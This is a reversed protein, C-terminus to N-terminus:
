VARGPSFSRYGKGSAAMRSRFRLLSLNTESDSHLLSFVADSILPESWIPWTWQTAYRGDNFGAQSGYRDPAMPFYHLGEVALLNAGVDTAIPNKAKNSPDDAQLAYLRKEDLPDWRLSSQPVYRWGDFLTERLTNVDVQRRLAAVNEVIKMQGSHFDFRTKLAVDDRPSTESFFAAWFAAFERLKEDWAILSICERLENISIKLKQREPNRTIQAPFVHETALREALLALLSDPPLPSGITTLRPVLRGGEATWSLAPMLAPSKLTVVRLVGLAALFGLPSAGDIAPLTVHHYQNTVFGSPRLSLGGAMAPDPSPTRSACWDALRFTAELYALGWWGHRRTLTWFRAAARAGLAGFSTSPECRRADRDFSAPLGLAMLDVAPPHEDPADPFTPRAHGHHSAILHLALERTPASLSIFGFHEVLQLSLLEHRFGLPLRQDQGIEHRRRKRRPLHGSKALPRGTSVASEAAAEDGDHLMVQFRQDLKGLDHAPAALDAAAQLSSPLCAAAFRRAASAVDASHHGLTIGEDAAESWADSEDAYDDEASATARRPGVLIVGRGGNFREIKPKNGLAHIVGDLWSSGAAPEEYVQKWCALLEDRDFPEAEAAALLAGFSDSFERGAWLDERLRLIARPRGALAAPEALDIGRIGLGYGVGSPAQALGNLGSSAPLVITDGGKIEGAQTGVRSREVGEWVVFFPARPRSLARGSTEEVTESANRGEVDGEDFTSTQRVFWAQFRPLPVSVSEVSTPPALALLDLVLEQAQKDTAANEPLDARWLVRVEPARTQKGHLFLAIDPEPSPRPGTQCLLDLHAPLLVPADPSPALFKTLRETGANTARLQDVQADMARIGFDVAPVGSESRTSISQLWHWTEYIARGYIPDEDGTKPEKTDAETIVLTASGRRLKGLRDLRGFRQRLADLSACETVLADFSFDAGVELCQTTVVVVPHPPAEEANSRLFRSWQEVLVDRDLPRLRGTLLVIDTKAHEAAALERSLLDAVEQATAVRNVMVALRPVGPFAPLHERLYRKVHTVIEAALTGRPHEKRAKPAVVLAAPKPATLREELVPHDLATGRESRDRPLCRDSPINRAIEPPLTASFVTCAFPTGVPEPAWAAGRYASIARLTQLFPVACHAEDVLILSDHATLGAWISATLADHGYSRFLLSSGIQDVTSCLIAPQSPDYAWTDDRAAGGRLRAVALPWASPGSDALLGRLRDAVVKLPGDTAGALANALVMAREHAEDVVIRRDVVFWIRRPAKRETLPRVAQAALSYVAADLCATKGSATPLSIAEPWEGAAGREALLRQWPFPDHGYLAKFFDAFSVFSKM